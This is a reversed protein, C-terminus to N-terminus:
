ATGQYRDWIRGCLKCPDEPPWEPQTYKGFHGCATVAANDHPVNLDVLHAKEGPWAIHWYWREGAM